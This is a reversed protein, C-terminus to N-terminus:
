RYVVGKIGEPAYARPAPSYHRKKVVKRPMPTYDGYGTATPTGCCIAGGVVVPQLGAPCNNAGPYAYIEGSNPNNATDSGMYMDGWALASSASLSLTVIAGALIKTFPM